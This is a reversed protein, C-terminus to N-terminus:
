GRRTVATLQTRGYRDSVTVRAVEHLPVPLTRGFSGRGRDVELSGLPIRSGNTIQVEVDWRGSGRAGQVLVFLWSPSGAYGFVLGARRGGLGRLPRAGFYSGNAQQLARRYASAAERDDDTALYVGALAAAAAALAAAVPALARRWRPPSWHPRRRRRTEMELRELVGSEFGAPPEAVPALLLLEDAVEASEALSRRCRPCDAVHDLVRAREDGAAIGLAVEAALERVEECRPDDSM